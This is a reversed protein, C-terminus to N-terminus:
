LECATFIDQVRQRHTLPRAKKYSEPFDPAYFDVAGRYESLEFDNIDNIDTVNLHPSNIIHAILELERWNDLTFCSIVKTYGSEHLDCIRVETRFNGDSALPVTLFIDQINYNNPKLGINYNDCIDSLSWRVSALFLNDWLETLVSLMEDPKLLALRKRGKYLSFWLSENCGHRVIVLNNKINILPMPIDEPKVGVQLDLM